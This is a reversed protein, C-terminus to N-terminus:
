KKKSTIEPLHFTLLSGRCNLFELPCAKSKAMRNLQRRLRDFRYAYRDTNFYGGNSRAINLIDSDTFNRVKNAM